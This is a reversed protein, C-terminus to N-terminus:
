EGPSFYPESNREALVSHPVPEFLEPLEGPHYFQLDTAEGDPCRLEGGLIECSFLITVAHVKDGNPYTYNMKFVGAIAVPRVHLGTEERVERIVAQAPEEGPDIAGGPLAWKGNDARRQLLVKGQSRVIAGVCPMQLLDHGVRKRLEKIYTSAGV